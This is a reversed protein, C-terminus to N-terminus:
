LATGKRPIHFRSMDAGELKLLETKVRIGGAYGTLSGDAGVVRHCPVIISIPNHGVAGGVARASMRPKGKKAAIKQAIWGYTVTEGYPILKLIDWVTQRFESGAPALRLGDASPRDGAFYSELWDRASRLVPDDVRKGAETWGGAGNGADTLGAGNGADTLGAGNGADTRGAGNGADTGSGAAEEEAALGTGTRSKSGGALAAGAVPGGHYKQGEIWVGALGKGDSCLTLTGVPSPWTTFIMM